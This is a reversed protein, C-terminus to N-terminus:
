MGKVLRHRLHITTKYLQNYRIDERKTHHNNEHLKRGWTQTKKQTRKLNLNSYSAAELLVTKYIKNQQRITKKSTNYQTDQKGIEREKKDIDLHRFM